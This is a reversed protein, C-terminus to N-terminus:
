GGTITRKAGNSPNWAVVHKSEDVYFVERLPELATRGGSTNAMVGIARERREIAGRDLDIALIEAGTEVVIRKGDDGIIRPFRSAGLPVYREPLSGNSLVHLANHLAPGDIYAVRGDRLFRATAIAGNGVPAILAGTRADNLTVVHSKYGRLLMQSADPGLVVLGGPQESSPTEGTQMVSRTKADIEVIKWGTSTALYMRLVDPSVFVGQAYRESSLHASVLTRKQPVDYISVIGPSYTAIRNGDDSIAFEGWTMTLGTNIPGTAGRRYMWLSAVRNESVPWVATNGDRSFRVGWPPSDIRLTKGDETNM